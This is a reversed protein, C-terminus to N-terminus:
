AIELPFGPRYDIWRDGSKLLNCSTGDGHCLPQLNDLTNTGGMARPKVHDVALYWIWGLAKIEAETKGCGLCKNGYEAKLATWQKGTWSDGSREWVRRKHSNARNKARGAPSKARRKEYSKRHERLAEKSLKIRHIGGRGEARSKHAQHKCTKKCYVKKSITTTFEKSCWPCSKTISPKAPHLKIRKLTQEERRLKEQAQWEPTARRLIEKAQWEPTSERAIRNAKKKNKNEATAARARNKARYAADFEPDALRRAKTAEKAQKAMARCKEPDELRLLHARAKASATWRAKSRDRRAQKLAESREASTQRQSPTMWAEAKANLYSEKRPM